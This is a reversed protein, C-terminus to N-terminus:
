TCARSVVDNAPGPRQHLSCWVTARGAITTKVLPAGDRPCGPLQARIAPSLVGTHSGGRALMEPLVQVCATHLAGIQGASLSGAPQAPHISAHWLVEDVCMNGLGAVVHQNLLVAKLAMRRGHLVSGLGDLGISLADPGLMSLDPDLLYRSWRRSDNVRLVGGDALGVVLRDWAPDDRGSGYQLREIPAKGDVVLRGTMGFHAALSPGSTHVVMYKGIREVGEVVCGILIELGPGACHEDAVVSSIRRGLVRRAARCYLEVELGEPMSPTQIVADHTAADM